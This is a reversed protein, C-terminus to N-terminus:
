WCHLCTYTCVGPRNSLDHKLVSGVQGPRIDQPRSSWSEANVAINCKAAKTNVNPQNLWIWIELSFIDQM